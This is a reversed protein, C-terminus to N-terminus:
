SNRCICLLNRSYYKKKSTKINNEFFKLFFMRFLNKDTLIKDKKNNGLFFLQSNNKDSLTFSSINNRLSKLGFYM